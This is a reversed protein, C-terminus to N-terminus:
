FPEGELAIEDELPTDLYQEMNWAAILELDDIKLKGERLHKLARNLDLLKQHHTTEFAHGDPYGYLMTLYNSRGVNWNLEYKGRQPNYVIEDEKPPVENRRYYDTITYVDTWFLDSLERDDRYVPVEAITLDDKSVYLLVGQQIGSMLLYSFLQLKNHAYGIFNGEADHNARSNHFAMSNISKVEVLTLEPFGNPFARQMEEQIAATQMATQEDDLDIRYSQMYQQGRERAVDWNSFGGITADLTGRLALHHTGEALAVKQQARNLLGTQALVRMVLFEILRGQSFVRNIRAGFPNSYEVGHMAYYRDIFAKGLESPRIFDRAEAPRGPAAVRNWAQQILRAM